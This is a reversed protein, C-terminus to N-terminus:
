PCRSELDQWMTSSIEPEVDEGKGIEKPPTSPSAAQPTKLWVHVDLYAIDQGPPPLPNKLEPNSGNMGVHSQDGLRWSEIDEPAIAVAKLLTEATLQQAM